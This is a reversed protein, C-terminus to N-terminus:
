LLNVGEAAPKIRMGVKPFVEVSVWFIHASVNVGALNCFTILVLHFIYEEDYIKLSSTTKKKEQM